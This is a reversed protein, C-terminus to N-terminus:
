YEHAIGLELNKIWENYKPHIHPKGNEDASFNMNESSVYKIQYSSDNYAVDITTEIKGRSYYLTLQGDKDNKVIWNKAKAAAIIADHMKQKSPKGSTAVPTARAPEYMETSRAYVSTVASVAIVTGIVLKKIM